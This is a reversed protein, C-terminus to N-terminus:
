IAADGDLPESETLEALNPLNAEPDGMVFRKYTLPRGFNVLLGVGGGACKLYNLIQAEDRAELEKAAKIEVIIKGNVVLDVWFTGILAGHFFVKIRREEIAELGLERLVIALARRYIKESYGHGLENHVKFFAGIIIRTLDAHPYDAM